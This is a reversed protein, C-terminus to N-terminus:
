GDIKLGSRGDPVVAAVTGAEEEVGCGNIGHRASDALREVHVGLAQAPGLDSAEEVTMYAFFADIQGEFL